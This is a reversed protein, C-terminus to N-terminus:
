AERVRRVIDRLQLEFNLDAAKFETGSIVLPAGFVVIEAGMELTQIAQDVSLGGVAQVPIDVAELVAPLDDLPSLGQIMNREDFGTHVIIYDVGMEQAERARGPKDQCLMVDCM